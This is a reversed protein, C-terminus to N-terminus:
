AASRARSRMTVMGAYYPAHLELDVVVKRYFQGSLKECGTVLRYRYIILSENTTTIGIQELNAPGFISNEYGEVQIECVYSGIWRILMGAQDYQTEAPLILRM